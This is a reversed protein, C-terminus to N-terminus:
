KNSQCDHCIGIIDLQHEELIFRQKIATKRLLYELQPDDEVAFTRKCNRCSIHHHHGHFDDSLELKYKWGTTVRKIIGIKELLKVSRYVSARDGYPDMLHVLESMSLPEHESKLLTGFVASRPITDSYGSKKLIQRYLEGPYLM